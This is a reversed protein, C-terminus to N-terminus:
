LARGTALILSTAGSSVFTFNAGAATTLEFTVTYQTGASDQLNATGSCGSGVTYTGTASLQQTGTSSSYYGALAISNTGSITILGSINYAGNIQASKLVFGNGNFSYVQAPIATPCTAPLLGGNLTISYVGDQGAMLYAKGSNYAELTYSGSDGTNITVTGVCNSQMTYTGGLTQPIQPFKASGTTLNFTVKSLGDFTVSGVAYEANTFTVSSNVDRGTLSVSYTGNLTATSCTGGGIQPQALLPVALLGPLCALFARSAIM